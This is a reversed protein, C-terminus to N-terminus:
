LIILTGKMGMQQDQSISSNYEYTGKNDATFTAVGPQGPRALPIKVHLNDIIFNHTGIIDLFIITVKDGQNVTIKNPTFYFNGGTIEFLKKKLATSTGNALEQKQRNMLPIPTQPRELPLQTYPTNSNSSSLVHKATKKSQSFYLGGSILLVAAIINLILLAKNKKGNKLDIKAALKEM